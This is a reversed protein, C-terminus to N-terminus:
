EKCNYPKVTENPRAVWSREEKIPEKLYLPDTVIASYHLRTGDNTPTFREVLLVEESMPAGFYNLYPWTIGDTTVVLSAGEWTGTSRGLIGKPLSQRATRPKLHIVRELDYLEIRLVIRDQKQVFEIPYPQEMLMPVGVPECGTTVSDTIPNWKALKDKAAQTLREESMTSSWPDDFKTSWVRFISAEGAAAAGDFFVSKTGSAADKWRSKGGPEFVLEQGNALLLNAGFMRNASRRSPNGAVRVKENFQPRVNAATTRRLMSVGSGEIDWVKAPDKSDRVKLTVHPNQWKLEVITGEIEVTKGFDYETPAHHASAKTAMFLVVFGLGIPSMAMRTM